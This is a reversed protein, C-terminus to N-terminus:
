ILLCEEEHMGCVCISVKIVRDYGSSLLQNKSEDFDIHTVAHKADFFLALSVRSRTFHHVHCNSTPKITMFESESLMLSLLMASM